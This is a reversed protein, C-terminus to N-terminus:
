QKPGSFNYICTESLGSDFENLTMTINSGSISGSGTYTFAGVSQSAVTISTGTVTGNITLVGAFNIVVDSVSGSSNTLTLVSNTITGDGSIPCTITGSVTYTGVFKARSETECNDGEYGADCICTGDVCNGFTGCNVDKCADSSCSNFFMITATAIVTLFSLGMMSIKKM